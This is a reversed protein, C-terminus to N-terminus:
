RINRANIMKGVITEDSSKRDTISNIEAVTLKDMNDPTLESEYGDCYSVFYASGM